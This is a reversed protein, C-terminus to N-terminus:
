REDLIYRELIKTYELLRVVRGFTNLSGGGSQCYHFENEDLVREINVIEMEILSNFGVTLEEDKERLDGEVSFKYPVSCDIRDGKILKIIENANM